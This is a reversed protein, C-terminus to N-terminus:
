RQGNSDAQDPPIFRGFGVEPPSGGGGQGQFPLGGVESDQGVSKGFLANYELLARCASQTSVLDPLENPDAPNSNWGHPEKYSSIIYEIGARLSTSARWDGKGELLTVIIRGVPEVPPQKSFKLDDFREKIWKLGAEAAEV